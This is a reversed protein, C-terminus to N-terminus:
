RKTTKPQTLANAVNFAVAKEVPVIRVDPVTQAGTINLEWDTEVRVARRIFEPLMDIPIIYDGYPLKAYETPELPKM